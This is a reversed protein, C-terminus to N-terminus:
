RRCTLRFRRIALAGCVALVALAGPYGLTWDGWRTYPAALPCAPVAVQTVMFGSFDTLNGASELRRVRGVPDVTCSVGSNAARVLPVGNEV